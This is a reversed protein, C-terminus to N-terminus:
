RPQTSLSGAISNPSFKVLQVALISIVFHSVIGSHRVWTAFGHSDLRLLNGISRTPRTMKRVKNASGAQSVYRAGLALTV